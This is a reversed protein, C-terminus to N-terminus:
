ASSGNQVIGPPSGGGTSPPGLAYGGMNTPVFTDPLVLADTASGGDDAGVGSSSSGNFLGSDGPTNFTGSAGPAGSGGSSSGCAAAVLVVAFAAVLALAVRKMM